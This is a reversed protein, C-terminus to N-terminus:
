PGHETRIGDFHHADQLAGETVDDAVISYGHFINGGGADVVEARRVEKDFVFHHPSRRRHHQILQPFHHPPHPSNCFLNDLRNKFIANFRYRTIQAALGRWHPKKLGRCELNSRLDLSSHAFRSRFLLSAAAFAKSVPSFGACLLTAGPDFCTGWEKDTHNWGFLLSLILTFDDSLYQPMGRFFSLLTLSMLAIIPSRIITSGKPFFNMTVLIFDRRRLFVELSWVFRSSSKECATPRALCTRSSGLTFADM